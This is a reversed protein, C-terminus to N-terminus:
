GYHFRCQIIYCTREEGEEGVIRYVLRHQKDIRRSWYGAFEHKLAEPKGTGEFPHRTIECILKQLKKALKRERELMYTFDEWGTETFAITM